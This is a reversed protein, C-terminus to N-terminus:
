GKETHIWARLSESILFQKHRVEPHQPRTQSMELTEKEAVVMVVPLAKSEALPKQMPVPM